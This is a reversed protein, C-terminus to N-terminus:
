DKLFRKRNWCAKIKKRLKLTLALYFFFQGRSIRGELLQTYVFQLTPLCM